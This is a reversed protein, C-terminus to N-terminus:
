QSKADGRAFIDTVYRLIEDAAKESYGFTRSLNQRIRDVRLKVADEHLSSASWLKILDKEDEFLKRILASKLRPDSEYTFKQGRDELVRLHYVMERRLDDKRTEPIDLREEISRMLRENPFAVPIGNADTSKGEQRDIYVKINDLYNACLAQLSDPDNAAIAQVESKVIQTYEARVDAILSKYRRRDKDNDIAPTTALEREVNKLLALPTVEDSSALMEGVLNRMFRPSMGSMGERKAESRLSAADGSTFGPVERQDYLKAKQLLTLRNNSPEELRTLVTWLAAVELTHPAIRDSESRFLKRYIREEDQVKLNYPIDIKITRDRFAEMTKDAVLKLYEPENTHSLIVQDIDAQAFKKPKIKHEQTACLLDYLFAVDLKLVEIFEIMGRNAKEFEGDFNFARADSDSGYAAIKRYNIDGTLETSDQNKEDKPQFSGIGVRDSESIIVRKVSVNKLVKQWDGSNKDLLERFEQRCSPCLDGQIEVDAARDNVRKLNEKVVGRQENPIIHLPEENMPCWLTKDAGAFKYEPHSPDLKFGLTFLAGEDTKSYEELGRKLLRAITSKATGVPGHLLIVSSEAGLGEAGAKIVSCLKALQPDLGFVADKGNNFPDDFIKYHPTGDNNQTVGFHQLMNWMREFANRTIEPNELVKGIYEAFGGRWSLKDYTRRNEPDTLANLFKEGESKARRCQEGFASEVARLEPAGLRVDDSLDPDSDVRKLNDDRM